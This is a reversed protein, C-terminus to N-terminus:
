MELIVRLREEGCKNIIIINDKNMIHDKSNYIFFALIWYRIFNQEVYYKRELFHFHNM